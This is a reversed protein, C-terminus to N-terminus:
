PTEEVNVDEPHLTEFWRWLGDEWHEVRATDAPSGPGLSARAFSYAKAEGSFASTALVDPGTVVVRWPKSPRRATV